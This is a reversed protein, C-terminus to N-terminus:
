LTRARYLFEKSGAGATTVDNSQSCELLAAKQNGRLPNGALRQTDPGTVLSTGPWYSLRKTSFVFFSLGAARFDLRFLTRNTHM